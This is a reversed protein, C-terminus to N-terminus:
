ERAPGCEPAHGKDRTDWQSSATDRMRQSGGGICRNALTRASTRADYACENTWGTQQGKARARQRMRMIAQM